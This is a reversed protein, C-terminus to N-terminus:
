AQMHSGCPYSATGASAAEVAAIPRDSRLVASSVHNDPLLDPTNDQRLGGFADIPVLVLVLVLM